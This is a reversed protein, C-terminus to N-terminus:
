YETVRALLLQSLPGGRIPPREAACLGWPPIEPADPRATLNAAFIHGALGQRLMVTAIYNGSVFSSRAEVWATYAAEGGPIMMGRSGLNAYLDNIQHFRAVRGPLDDHLEGLLLQAAQLDHLPSFLREQKPKAM